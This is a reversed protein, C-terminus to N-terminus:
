FRVKIDPRNALHVTDVFRVKRESLNMVLPHTRVGGWLIARGEAAPWRHGWDRRVRHEQSSPALEQTSYIRKHDKIGMQRMREAQENDKVILGLRFRRM